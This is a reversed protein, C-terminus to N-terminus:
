LAFNFIKLLYTVKKVRKDIIVCKKDFIALFRIGLCIKGGLVKHGPLFQGRFYRIGPGACGYRGKNPLGGRPFCSLHM